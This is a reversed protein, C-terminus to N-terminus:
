NLELIINSIAINYCVSGNTPYSTFVIKLSVIGEGTLTAINDGTENSTTISGTAVNNGNADLGYITFIDNVGNHTKENQTLRLGTINVKVTSSATFTPTTIYTDVYKFRLGGTTNSFDPEPLKANSSVYTMGSPLSGNINYTVNTPETNGGNNNGGNNGTNDGGTGGQNGTDGTNGGNNGTGGNPLYVRLEFHSQVLDTYWTVELTIEGKKYVYWIASQGDPATLKYGENALKILYQEFEEKSNGQSTYVIGKSFDYESAIGEVYYENSEIFPVVEGVNQTFVQKEKATFDTYKYVVQNENSNDCSTIILTLGISLAVLLIVGINLVKKNLTALFTKVKEFISKM